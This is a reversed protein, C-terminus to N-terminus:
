ARHYVILGAEQGGVPLVSHVHGEGCQLLFASVAQDFAEVSPYSTRLFTKIRPQRDVGKAAVELSPTPRSIEIRAKKADSKPITLPKEPPAKAPAHAPTVKINQPTPEPISLSSGCEPCAIETGAGSADAELEQRCNPCTFILDM